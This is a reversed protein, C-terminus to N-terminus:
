LCCARCRRTSSRSMRTPARRRVDHLRRLLAQLAIDGARPDGHGRHDGLRRHRRQRPEPAQHPHDYVLQERTRSRSGVIRERRNGSSAEPPSHRDGLRDLDGGRRLWASLRKVADRMERWPMDPYRHKLEDPLRRSAESIIELARTTAYYTKLDKEFARTTWGPSLTASSCSTSASTSLRRHRPGLFCLDRGAGRQTQRPAAPRRPEFRGSEIPVHRRSPPDGWVYEWLGVHAEPDLEVLIDIDSEPRAEGRAQSGSCPLM